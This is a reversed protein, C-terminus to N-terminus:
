AHRLVERRQEAAAELGIYLTEVVESTFAKVTELGLVFGEGRQAAMNVGQASDAVEIAALLRDVVTRVEAPLVLKSLSMLGGQAM